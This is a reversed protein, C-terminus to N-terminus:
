CKIEKLYLVEEKLSINKKKKKKKQSKQSVIIVHAIMILKKKIDLGDLVEPEKKLKLIKILNFIMM